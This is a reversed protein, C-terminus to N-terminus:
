DFQIVKGVDCPFVEGSFLRTLAEMGRWGTCHAQGVKQVHFKNLCQVAERIVGEPADSLHMGGLVMYIRKEGTIDAVTELTNALGSHCCGLLVAIGQSTNLIIAQDDLVFDPEKGESDDYLGKNIEWSNFKRGIEGTLFIGPLIESPKINLSFKDRYKQADIPMGIERTTKGPKVSFRKRFVNPHAYIITGPNLSLFSNLGGTHDYHGHSLVVKGVKILDCGLAAANKQFLDSQGLDFLVSEQPTEILLSWGHEAQLGPLYVNNNVLVTLKISNCM